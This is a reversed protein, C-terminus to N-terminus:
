SKKLILSVPFTFSDASLRELYVFYSPWVLFFSLLFFRVTLNIKNRFFYTFVLLSFLNIIIIIFYNIKFFLQTDNISDGSIYFILSSIFFIISGPHYVSQTEFNKFLLKANAYYDNEVDTFLVNYYPRPEIFNTYIYFLLFFVILFIIDIKKILEQKM